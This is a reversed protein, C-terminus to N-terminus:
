CLKATPPNFVLVLLEATVSFTRTSYFHDNLIRCCVSKYASLVHGHRLLRLQIDPRRFTRSYAESLRSRTIILMIIGLSLLPSM